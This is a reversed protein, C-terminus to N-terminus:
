TEMETEMTDTKPPTKTESPTEGDINQIDSLDIAPLPTRWYLFSNYQCFEEPEAIASHEKGEGLARGEETRLDQHVTAAGRRRRRGGVDGQEGRPSCGRLAPRKGPPAEAEELKRKPAAPGAGAGEARPRREPAPARSLPPERLPRKVPVHCVLPEGRRKAM